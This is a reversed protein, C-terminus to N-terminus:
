GNGDRGDKKDGDKFEWVWVGAERHFFVRTRRGTRMAMFRAAYMLRCWRVENLRTTAVLGLKSIAM